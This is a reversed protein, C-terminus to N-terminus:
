VRASSAVRMSSLLFLGVAKIVDGSNFGFKATHQDEGSEPVM